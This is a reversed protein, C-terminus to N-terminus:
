DHFDLMQTLLTEDIRSPLFETLTVVETLLSFAWRGDGKAYETLSNELSRVATNIPGAFFQGMHWIRSKFKPKQHFYWFIAKHTEGWVHYKWWIWIQLTILHGSNSKLWKRVTRRCAHNLSVLLARLAARMKSFRGSKQCCDTSIVDCNVDNDQLAPMFKQQFLHSNTLEFNFALFDEPIAPNLKTVKENNAM